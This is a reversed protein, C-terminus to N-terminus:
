TATVWRRAEVAFTSRPGTSPPDRRARARRPANVGRLAYATVVAWYISDLWTWGENFHVFTAGIMTVALVLVVSRVAQVVYRMNRSLKGKSLTLGDITGQLTGMVMGLSTAVISLGGLIYVIAFIKSSDSDPHLDGYGVTTLTVACFYVADTWEMAEDSYHFYATGIALYVVIIPLAFKALTSSTELREFTPAPVTQEIGM